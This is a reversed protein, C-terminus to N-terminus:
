QQYMQTLERKLEMLKRLEQVSPTAATAYGSAGGPNRASVWGAPGAAAGSGTTKALVIYFRTNGPVTVVIIQHYALDNLQQEGAVAVNNAVRERLLVNNSLAANSGTGSQVGVTAALITGIGTLSRVL